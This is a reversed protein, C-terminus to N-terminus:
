PHRLVTVGEQRWRWIFVDEGHIRHVRPWGSRRPVLQISPEVDQRSTEAPARQQVLGLVQRPIQHILRKALVPVTECGNAGLLIRSTPEQVIIEPLQDWVSFRLRSWIDLFSM